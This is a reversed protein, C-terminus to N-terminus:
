SLNSSRNIVIVYIELNRGCHYSHLSVLLARFHVFGNACLYLAFCTKLCFEVIDILSKSKRIKIHNKSKQCMLLFPNILFLFFVLLICLYIFLYCRVYDLLLCGFMTVFCLFFQHMSMNYHKHM